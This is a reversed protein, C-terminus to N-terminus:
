ALAPPEAGPVPPNLPKAEAKKWTLTVQLHAEGGAKALVVGSEATIKM